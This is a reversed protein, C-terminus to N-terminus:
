DIQIVTLMRYEIGFGNNIFIEQWEMRHGYVEIFREMEKKGKFTKIKWFM